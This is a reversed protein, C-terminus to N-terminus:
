LNVCFRKVLSFLAVSRFHAEEEEAGRRGEHGRGEAVEVREMGNKDHRNDHRRTDIPFGEGPKRNNNSGPPTTSTMLPTDPIDVHRNKGQENGTNQSSPFPDPGGVCDLNGTLSTERTGRSAEVAARWSRITM